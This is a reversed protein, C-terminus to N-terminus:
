VKKLTRTMEDKFKGTPLNLRITIDGGPRITCKGVCTRCRTVDAEGAADFRQVDHLANNSTVEKRETKEHTAEKRSPLANVDSQGEAKLQGSATFACSDMM